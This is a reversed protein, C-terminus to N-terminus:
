NTAKSTINPNFTKQYSLYNRFVTVIRVVLVIVAFLALPHQNFSESYHGHLLQIIGRGLGCGPCHEFGALSLPCLTFHSGSQLSSLSFAILVMIWILAELNHRIFNLIGSVSEKM